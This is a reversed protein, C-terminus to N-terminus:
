AYDRVLALLENLRPHNRNEIWANALIWRCNAQNPMKRVDPVKLLNVLRHFRRLDARNM